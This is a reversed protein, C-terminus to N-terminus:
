LAALRDALSKLMGATAGWIYRDEWDYAYYQRERGGWHGTRTELNAPNMLYDLPTEFVAAVERPDPVPQFTPHIMAVIPAVRFGTGTEYHDIEGLVEAHHHPLGIEENAERLAAAEADVDGEDIKGGPFAVQGAHERMTDPRQTLIVSLGHPREVIPCLVAAARLPRSGNIERKVGPNLDYDSRRNGPLRIARIISARTIPQSMLLLHRHPPYFDLYLSKIGAMTTIFVPRGDVEKSLVM